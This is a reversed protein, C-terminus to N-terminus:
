KAIIIFEVEEPITKLVKVREPVRTLYVKLRKEKILSPLYQVQASFDSADIHPFVSLPVRCIIETKDPFIKLNEGNGSISVPVTYSAETVKEVRFSVTVSDTSYKLLDAQRGKFLPVRVSLSSDLQTLNLRQTSM